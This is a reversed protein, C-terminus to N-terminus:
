RRAGRKGYRCCGPCSGPHSQQPQCDANAYPGEKTVVSVSGTLDSKKVTGYGIVVVDDLTHIEPELQVNVVIRGGLPEESTKYGVFSFRLTAEPNSVVLSYDGTIQTTTGTTTGAISVNVGPLPQGNEDTVHGTVTTQAIAAQSFLIVM